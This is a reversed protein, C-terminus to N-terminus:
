YWQCLSILCYSSQFATKDHHFYIFHDLHGRIYNLLGHCVTWMNISRDKHATFHQKVEAPIESAPRHQKDQDPKKQKLKCVTNRSM